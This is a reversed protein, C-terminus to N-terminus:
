AAEVERTERAARRQKRAKPGGAVWNMGGRVLPAGTLRIHGMVAAGITTHDRHFVRGIAALTLETEAACRYIAEFRAPLIKRKRSPGILAAAPLLYKAATEAIIEGCRGTTPPRDLWLPPSPEVAAPPALPAAEEPTQIPEAHAAQYALGAARIRKGAESKGILGYNQGIM